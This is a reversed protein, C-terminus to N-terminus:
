LGLSMPGPARVSLGHVALRDALRHVIPVNAKEEPQHLFLYAETLGLMSWEALRDAWADARDADVAPSGTGVLRVIATPTTLRGHLVDRRGAVDTIITSVGRTELHDFAASGTGTAFWGEHRLEVALSVHRPWRDVFRRLADIREPGFREPLLAWSVGLHTGFGELADTFRRVDDDTGELMRAHTITKPLKPCFRFGDPVDASWRRISDADTRYYTANLEITELQTAYAELYCRAPTRPPYLRGVLGRDGWRPLGLRVRAPAPARPATSLVRATAPDDSPLTFDVGDIRDLKGFKM